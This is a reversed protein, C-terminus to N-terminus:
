KAPEPPPVMGHCDGNRWETIDNNLFDVAEKYRKDVEEITTANLFFDLATDFGHMYGRRYAAETFDTKLRLSGHMKELLEAGSQTMPETRQEDAHNM